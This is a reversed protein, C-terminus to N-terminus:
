FEFEAWDEEPVCVTCTSVKNGPGFYRHRGTSLVRLKGGATGTCHVAHIVDGDKIDLTHGRIHRPIHVILMRGAGTSGDDILGYFGHIEMAKYNSAVLRTQNKRDDPWSREGGM